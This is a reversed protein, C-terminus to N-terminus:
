INLADQISKEFVATQKDRFGVHKEVINGQRDILYSSPMGLVQYKKASEGKPDYAIKFNAPYKRLFKEVLESKKDLNVALIVLGKDHYRSHMSNMWPFSKRCPICWSAWFDLYVVKGQLQKISISGSDTRFSLAPAKSISASILNASSILLVFFFVRILKHLTINMYLIEFTALLPCTTYFIFRLDLKFDDVYIFIFSMDILM